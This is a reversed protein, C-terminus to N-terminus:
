YRITFTRLVRHGVAALLALGRITIKKSFFLLLSPGLVGGWSFMSKGDQRCAFASGKGRPPSRKGPPPTTTPRRHLHRGTARQGM